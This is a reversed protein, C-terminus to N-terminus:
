EDELEEIKEKLENIKDEKTKAKLEDLFENWDERTKQWVTEYVTKDIKKVRGLACLYGFMFFGSIVVLFFIFNM